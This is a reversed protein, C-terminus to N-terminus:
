PDQGALPLHCPSPVRDPHRRAFGGAIDLVGAALAKQLCGLLPPSGARGRRGYLAVVDAFRRESALCQESSSVNLGVDAADAKFGHGHSGSEGAPCWYAARYVTLAAISPRALPRLFDFRAKLFAAQCFVSPPGSPDGKTM